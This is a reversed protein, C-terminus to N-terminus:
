VLKLTEKRGNYKESEEELDKEGFDSLDKTKLLMILSFFSTIVKDCRRPFRPLKHLPYDNISVCIVNFSKLLETDYFKYGNDDVLFKSNLGSIRKENLTLSSMRNCLTVSHQKGVDEPKLFFSFKVDQESVLHENILTVNMGALLLNKMCEEQIGNKGLFLVQSNMIKKQAEIGWLRIQRDYVLSDTTTLGTDSRDNHDNHDPNIDNEGESVDIVELLDESDSNM